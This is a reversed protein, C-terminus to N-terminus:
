DCANEMREDYQRKVEAACDPSGNCNSLSNLYQQRLESKDGSCPQSCSFISVCIVFFIIFAVFALWGKINSYPLRLPPEYVHFHPENIPYDKIIDEWVNQGDIKIEECKGLFQQKIEATATPSGNAFVLAVKLQETLENLSSM